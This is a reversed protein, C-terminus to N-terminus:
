SSRRAAFIKKELSTVGISSFQRAVDLRRLIQHQNNRSSYIINFSGDILVAEAVRGGSSDVDGIYLNKYKALPIANRIAHL